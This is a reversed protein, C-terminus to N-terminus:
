KKIRSLLVASLQFNPFEEKKVSGYFDCVECSRFKQAFSGQVEGKCFTGGVVWCSRGANTGGHIGNLRKEDAAPCLGMDNVHEGGPQRGCHKFEWCNMRENQVNM